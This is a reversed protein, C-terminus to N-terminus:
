RIKQNKRYSKLLKKISRERTLRLSSDVTFGPYNLLAQVLTVNGDSVATELARDASIIRSVPIAATGLILHIWDASNNEVAFDLVTTASGWRNIDAKPHKLLVLALNTQGSKLSEYFASGQKENPDTLRHRAIAEAIAWHKLRIAESLPTPNFGAAASGSGRTRNPDIAPATLLIQVLRLDGLAVAYPLPRDTSSLGGHANPNVGAQITKEVTVYDAAQVADWFMWELHFGSTLFARVDIGAVVLTRLKAVDGGSSMGLQFLGFTKELYSALEHGSAAYDLPKADTAYFRQLISKLPELLALKPAIEFDNKQMQDLFTTSDLLNVVAQHILAVANRHKAARAGASMPLYSHLTEHLVVWARSRDSIQNEFLDQDLFVSNGVRFAVRVAGLQDDNFLDDPSGRLKLKGLCYSLRTAEKKVSLAFFWHVRSIADIIGQFESSSAVFDKGSIWRCTSPDVLDRLEYGGIPQPNPVLDGGGGITSSGGEAQAFANFSLCLAIVSWFSNKM